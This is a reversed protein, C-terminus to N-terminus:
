VREELALGEVDDALTKIAEAVDDASQKLDKFAEITIRGDAFMQQILGAHQIIRLTAVLAESTFQDNSM